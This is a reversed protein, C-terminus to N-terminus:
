KELVFIRFHRDRDHSWNKFRGCVRRTDPYYEVGEFHAYGVPCSAAGNPGSNCAQWAPPTEDESSYAYVNVDGATKGKPLTICIHGCTAAKTIAVTNGIRTCIGCASHEDLGEGCAKPFKLSANAEFKAPVAVNINKELGPGVTVDSSEDGAVLVQSLLVLLMTATSRAFKTV